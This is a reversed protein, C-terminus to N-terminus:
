RTRGWDAGTTQLSLDLGWDQLQVTLVRGSTLVLRLLRGEMGELVRTM